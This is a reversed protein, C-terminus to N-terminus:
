KVLIFFHDSDVGTHICLDNGADLCVAQDLQCRELDRTLDEDSIHPSRETMTTTTTTTTQKHHAKEVRVALINPHDLQRQTQIAGTQQHQGVHASTTFCGLPPRAALSVPGGLTQFELDEMM